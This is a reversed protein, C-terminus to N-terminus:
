YQLGLGILLERISAGDRNATGSLKGGNESLAILDWGASIRAYISRMKMPYVIIEMGGSYWGDKLSYYRGTLPDHTLAMDFFPSLQMDFGVAKTWSVGTIELFNVRMIRIPLDINLTLASDRDEVRSNLIGRVDSAATDITDHNFRYFGTVRSYLGIRDFMTYYGSLSGDLSPNMHDKHINYDYKNSISLMFGKRFNGFWDVRGIDLSHGITAVPGQLDSNDIKDFAWNSSIQTLPTWTLKGVHDFKYLTFPVKAYLKENFYYPDAKYIIPPNDGSRPNITVSQDIGVIVKADIGKIPFAINMGTTVDFQPVEDQPFSVSASNSWNCSYGWAKFPLTFDVNATIDSKGDNDIGYNLDGNLVNMSGLFNYNKFKLKLMFGTNSDYKPYPLAIINWTDVTHVTLTVPVIGDANAIGYETDLVVSEFVRQNKFLVTLDAVFAELHDKDQYIAQTDISVAQTLPYERTSGKIDYKVHDIKYKETTQSFIM